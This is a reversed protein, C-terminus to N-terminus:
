LFFHRITSDRVLSTATVSTGGASFRASGDGTTVTELFAAIRCGSSAAHFQISLHMEISGSLDVVTGDESHENTSENNDKERM